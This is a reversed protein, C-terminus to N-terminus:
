TPKLQQISIKPDWTHNEKSPVRKAVSKEQTNQAMDKIKVSLCLCCTPPPCLPAHAGGGLCPRAQWWHQRCCRCSSALQPGVAPLTQLLQEHGGLSLLWWNGRSVLTIKIAKRKLQAFNVSSLPFLSFGAEEQLCFESTCNM